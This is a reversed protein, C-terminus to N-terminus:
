AQSTTDAQHGLRALPPHAPTRAGPGLRAAAAGCTWCDNVMPYANLPKWGGTAPGGVTFVPPVLRRYSEVVLL